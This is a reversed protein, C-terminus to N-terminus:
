GLLTEAREVCLNLHHLVQEFVKRNFGDKYIVSDM